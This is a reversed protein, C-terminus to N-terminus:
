ENGAVRGVFAAVDQAQRGSLVQAPMVGQGLCASAASNAPPNQLCGNNITNLVLSAPPKLQDLNPGVKGTANAAALTHCQACNQGFLMRGQKEAATLTLGGVQASANAHNGALVAIPIVAGFAVYIIAFIIGAAKRGSRSQTQATGRAGGFGGRVAVLFLGLGLIVWFAIFLVTALV